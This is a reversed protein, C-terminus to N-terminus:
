DMMQVQWMLTKPLPQMRQISCVTQNNQDRYVHGEGLFYNQTDGLTSQIVRMYPQRSSQVEGVMVCLLINQLKENIHYNVLSNNEGKVFLTVM